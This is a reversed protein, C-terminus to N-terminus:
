MGRPYDASSGAGQRCEQSQWRSEHQRDAANDSGEPLPAQCQYQIIVTLINETFCKPSPVLLSVLLAALMMM